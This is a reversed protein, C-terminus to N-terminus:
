NAIRELAVAFFGDTHHVHPLARFAGDGGILNPAGIRPVLFPQLLERLRGAHVRRIGRFHKLAYTVVAENEEPELSCTSYILRGGPKLFKLANMLLNRQRSEFVQLDHPQLRWRIEPNRALTGTGSCPADLLVRDFQACFPLPQEADLAILSVNRTGTRVLNKQMARLRHMYLDAAVTNGSPAVVRAVITTKGGPAACLDLVSDGSHAAFLLPITQSAEDQFSIAGSRFARSHEANGATVRAAERLLAGEELAIGDEKLTALAEAHDVSAFALASHVAQNNARLLRATADPGFRTLWRETLWTPHSNLVALKETASLVSPLLHEPPIRSEQAARRLVANVLGAASTKGARKALEVSEPVAAHAPVRELFHLQYIGLRLAIWIELELSRSSKRLHRVILTDLLRQWRLVGFVLETALAADESRIAGERRIRLEDAAYTGEAAVRLLVDFAIIRAPSVAM